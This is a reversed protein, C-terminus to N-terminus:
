SPPMGRLHDALWAMDPDAIGLDALHAATNWLYDRNPGRDGMAGAIIRAQEVLTLGGAYHDHARNIVYTLASVRRGDALDVPLERELYGSGDLERDHLYARTAAESGTAVRLALGHCAHGPAADLALVLGPADPTGRYVTSKMCFSRRWGALSAALREAVPFGPDWLLSGYAFVWLTM